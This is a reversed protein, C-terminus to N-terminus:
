EFYAIHIIKFNIKSKHISISNCKELVHGCDIYKFNVAFHDLHIVAKLKFQGM